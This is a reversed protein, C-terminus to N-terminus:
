SPQHARRLLVRNRWHATMMFSAGLLSLAADVQFADKFILAGVSLFGIGTVALALVQKKRHCRYGPIFAWLAVTVVIVLLVPHAGGLVSAAAPIMALLFPTALCHVACAISIVQGLTDSAESEHHHPASGMRSTPPAIIQRLHKRLGFGLPGRHSVPGWKVGPSFSPM